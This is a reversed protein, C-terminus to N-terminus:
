RGFTGFMQAQALIHGGMAKELASKNASDPLKLMTDLAYLKFYYRHAKGPPPCPGGYGTKPWSNKGQKTGDPLSGEKAMGEPLSISAPPINWVVWHVWTGMPADPDDMILALSKATDPVGTWVLQPSIDKGDCSYEKPIAAGNVFERSTIEMAMGTGGKVVNTTDAVAKPPLTSTNEAPPQKSSKCSLLAFACLVLIFKGNRM